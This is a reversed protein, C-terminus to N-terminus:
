APDPKIRVTASLVGGPLECPEGATVVHSLRYPSRPHAPVVGLGFGKPACHFRLEVISVGPWRLDSSPECDAVPDFPDVVALSSVRFEAHDAGDFELVAVSLRCFGGSGTDVM